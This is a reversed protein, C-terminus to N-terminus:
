GSNKLSNGNYENRYLSRRDSKNIHRKTMRLSSWGRKESGNEANNEELKEGNNRKTMRMSNWDYEQSGRKNMRWYNEVTKMKLAEWDPEEHSARKTMRLSNWNPQRGQM